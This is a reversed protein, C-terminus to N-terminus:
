ASSHSRVCVEDFKNSVYSSMSLSVFMDEIYPVPDNNTQFSRSVATINTANFCCVNTTNAVVTEVLKKFDSFLQLFCLM